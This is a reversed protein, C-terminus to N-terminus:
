PEIQYLWISKGVREVPKEHLLWTFHDYPPVGMGLTLAAHSLAVWGTVRNYPTLEITKPMDFQALDIERTGNYRIHIEEIGHRNCAESLRKLDQGWDLDSDSVIAGPRNGALMNFYALYDPHASISSIGCGLILVVSLAKAIVRSQWLFVAGCGAFIALLPYVCLLQRIGNTPTAFIGVILVAAICVGPFVLWRYSGGREKFAGVMAVFGAFVLLLFATPTKFFIVVPYFMWFGSKGIEGQFYVLHGEGRRFHFLDFLGWFFDLAPLPVTIAFHRVWEAVPGLRELMQEFLEGPGGAEHILPHFSFRYVAWISLIGFVGANMLNLVVKASGSGPPANWFSRLIVRRVGLITLGSLGIFLIASFKTTVALGALVGVILSRWFDPRELWLVLAFLTAVVFAACAMDLTALGAHGLVPPVLSFLFAALLGAWRGGCRSAWLIVIVMAMLFFPLVGLRALTLRREYQGGDHLLKNGDEWFNKAGQVGRAGDFYPGAAVFIRALPPHLREYSYENKEWWQLGCAIHAPEDWTQWFSKYTLTIRWLAVFAVVAM